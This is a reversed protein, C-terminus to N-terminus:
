YFRAFGGTGFLAFLWGILLVVLLLQLSWRIEIRRWPFLLLLASAWVLYPFPRLDLSDAELTIWPSEPHSPWRYRLSRHLLPSVEVVMATGM